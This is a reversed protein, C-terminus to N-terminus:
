VDKVEQEILYNCKHPNEDSCVKHKSWYRPCKDESAHDSCMTWFPCFEKYYPLQDVIIKM